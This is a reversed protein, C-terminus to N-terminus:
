DNSDDKANIEWLSLCIALLMFFMADEWSDLFFYQMSAVTYALGSLTGFLKKM